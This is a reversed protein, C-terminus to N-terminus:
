AQRGGDRAKLANSQKVALNIIDDRTLCEGRTIGIRDAEVGAEDLLRRVYGIRREAVRSGTLFRCGEDPCDVLEVADAEEDLLKLVHSVKVKSSCPVAAARIALGQDTTLEDPINEGEAVCHRCYLVVIKRARDHRLTTCGL